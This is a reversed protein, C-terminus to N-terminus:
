CHMLIKGEYSSNHNRTCLEDIGLFHPTAPHYGKQKRNVFDKFISRVTWEHMGVEGAIKTFPGYLARNEIYSILRKTARHKDDMDDLLEFFAKGCDNCYLRRRKVHLGVRKGHMPADMFLQIDRGHGVINIGRCHPCCSSMAVTEVTFHYDIDNEKIHLVALAPINLMNDMMEGHSLNNRHAGTLIFIVPVNEVLAM